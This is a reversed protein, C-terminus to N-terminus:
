RFHQRPLPPGRETRSFFNSFAKQGAATDEESPPPEQQQTSGRASESVSPQPTADVRTSHEGAFYADSLSEHDAELEHYAQAYNQASPLAQHLGRRRTPCNPSYHGRQGRAFCRGQPASPTPTMEPLRSPRPAPYLPLSSPYRTPLPRSRQPPRQQFRQSPGPVSRPNRRYASRPNQRTDGYFIAEGNVDMTYANGERTFFIGSDVAHEVFSIASSETPENWSDHVGRVCDNDAESFQFVKAISKRRSQLSPKSLHFAEQTLATAQALAQLESTFAALTFTDRHAKANAILNRQWEQPELADIFTDVMAQESKYVDPGNLSYRQILQAFKEVAENYPLDNEQQFLMLRQSQIATKLASRATSSCFRVKLRHIADALTQAPLANNPSQPPLRRSVDGRVDSAYFTSAMGALAVPLLQVRTHEDNVGYHEMKAEYEVAWHPFSPHETLVGSFARGSVAYHKELASAVYTSSSPRGNQPDFHQRSSRRFSSTDRRGYRGRDGRDDESADEDDSPEPDGGRTVRERHRVHRSSEDNTKRADRDDGFRSDENERTEVAGQDDEIRADQRGGARVQKGVSAFSSQPAHDFLNRPNQRTGYREVLRSSDNATPVDDKGLLTGTSAGKSFGGRVLESRSDPTAEPRTESGVARTLSSSPPLNDNLQQDTSTAPSLTALPTKTPPQEHRANDKCFARYRSSEGVSFGDVRLAERQMLICSGLRVELREYSKQPLILATQTHGFYGVIDRLLFWLDSNFYVEGSTLTEFSSRELLEIMRLDDVSPNGIADADDITVPVCEKALLDSLAYLVTRYHRGESEKFSPSNLNDLRLKVKDVLSLYVADPVRPKQETKQQNKPQPLGSPPLNGPKAGDSKGGDGKGDPDTPGGDSRLKPAM